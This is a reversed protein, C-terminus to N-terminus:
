SAPNKGTLRARKAAILSSGGRAPRMELGARKRTNEILDSSHSNGTGQSNAIRGTKKPTSRTDLTSAKLTTTGDTTGRHRELDEIFRWSTQWVKENLTLDLHFARLQERLALIDGALLGIHRKMGYQSLLVAVSVLEVPAFTKVNRYHNNEFVDLRIQVLTSFLEFTRYLHDKTKDNLARENSCFLELNNISHRLRPVGDASTPDQSEYIQSFCTLLRRFGLARKHKCLDVVDRFRDEYEQTLLQWAGTTARFAEASTLPIGLQVRQFIEREQTEDLNRYECSLLDKKLFARRISEPLYRRGRRRVTEGESNTEFGFYWPAGKRDHCPIRGHIFGRISTLRQKGDMCTRKFRPKGDACQIEEVNFLVPPVYFNEMLSDILKSMRKIPWVVERQYAPSIDLYEGDLLVMLQELNRRVFQSEALKRKPLFGEMADEDGTDEDEDYEGEDLEDIQAHSSESADSISESPRALEQVSTQETKIGLTEPFFLDGSKILNKDQPRSTLPM